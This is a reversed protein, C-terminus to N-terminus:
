NHPCVQVASVSSTMSFKDTLSFWGGVFIGNSLSSTSGYWLGSAPDQQTPAGTTLWYGTFFGGGSRRGRVEEDRRSAPM